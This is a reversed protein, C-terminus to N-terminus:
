SREERRAARRGRWPTRPDGRRPWADHVRSMQGTLLLVSVGALALWPLSSAPTHINHFVNGFAYIGVGSAVVFVLMEVQRRRLSPGSREQLQKM